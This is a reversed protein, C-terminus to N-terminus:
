YVIFLKKPDLFLTFYWERFFIKKCIFQEECNQVCKWSFPSYLPKVLYGWLCVNESFTGAITLYDTAFSRNERELFVGIVKLERRSIICRIFVFSIAFFSLFLPNPFSFDWILVSIIKFHILKDFSNDGGYIGWVMM